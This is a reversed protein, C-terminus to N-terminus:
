SSQIGQINRIFLFMRTPDYYSSLFNDLEMLQTEARNQGLPVFLFASVHNMNKMRIGFNLM